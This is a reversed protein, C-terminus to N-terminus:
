VVLMVFNAVLSYTNLTQSGINILRYCSWL